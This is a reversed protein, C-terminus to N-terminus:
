ESAVRMHLGDNTTDVRTDTPEAYVKKKQKEREREREREREGEGSRTHLMADSIRNRFYVQM